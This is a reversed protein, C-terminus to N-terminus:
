AFLNVSEASYLQCDGQHAARQRQLDKELVCTLREVRYGVTFLKEQLEPLCSAIFEQVPKEECKCVCGIQRDKLHLEVLLHGLMDLDLFLEVAFSRHGQSAPDARDDERILIDVLKMGGPFLLPIQLLCAHEAEQLMVNVIQQNEITKVTKEAASLAEHLTIRLEEPLSADMVLSGMKGPLQLLLEKLGEPVRGNGLGQEGKALLIKKLHSEMLLGLDTPYDRLYNGHNLTKGSYRLAQLLKLVNRIDDQLLLPLRPHVLAQMLLGETRALSGLLEEPNSRFFRLNETLIDRAAVNDSIVRLVLQPHQQDVRVRLKDGVRLSTASDALIMRDKLAVLYQRDSNRQVIAISLEEGLSLLPSIAPDRFVLSTAGSKGVPGTGSLRSSIL